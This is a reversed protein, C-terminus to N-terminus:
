ELASGWLRYGLLRVSVEVSVSEEFNSIHLIKTPSYVHKGASATAKATFRNMLHGYEKM